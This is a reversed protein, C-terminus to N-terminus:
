IPLSIEYEREVVTFGLAAERSHEGQLLTSDEGGILCQIAPTQTRPTGLLKVTLDQDITVEQAAPDGTAQAYATVATNLDTGNIILFRTDFAGDEVSVPEQVPSLCYREGDSGLYFRCTSITLQFGDPLNTSGSVSVLNLDRNERETEEVAIEAELEVEIPESLNCDNQALALEVSGLPMAIILPILISRIPPTMM